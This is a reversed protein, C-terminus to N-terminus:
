NLMGMVRARVGLSDLKPCPMFYDHALAVDSADTKFLEFDFQRFVGALCMYLEAQALNLGICSRAGKGFGVFYKEISNGNVKPPDIWREPIFEVSEPYVKENHNIDVITMSVTSGAPITYRRYVLDRHPVRPIRSAIGYALRIGERVVGTLYPLAELRSWDYAPLYSADPIAEVLEARLKQLLWPKSILHFATVSMAWSTTLIAAGIIVQAEQQMRLVTKESEPLDSTLMEHFLTAHEVDKHADNM